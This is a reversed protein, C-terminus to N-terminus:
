WILMAVHNILLMRKGVERRQFLYGMKPSKVQWGRIFLLGMYKNIHESLLFHDINGCGSYLLAVIQQFGAFFLYIFVYVCFFKVVSVKLIPRWKRMPISPGEELLLRRGQRMIAKSRSWLNRICALRKMRRERRFWSFFTFVFGM